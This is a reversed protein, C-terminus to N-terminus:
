VKSTKSLKLRWRHSAQALKVFQEPIASMFSETGPGGWEYREEQIDCVFELEASSFGILIQIKFLALGDVSSSKIKCDLKDCNKWSM